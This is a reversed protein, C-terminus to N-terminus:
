PQCTIILDNEFFIHVEFHCIKWVMQGFQTLNKAVLGIQHERDLDKM